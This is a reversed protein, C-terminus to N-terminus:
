QWSPNDGIKEIYQVKYKSELSTFITCQHSVHITNNSFVGHFHDKHCQFAKENDSDNQYVYVPVCICDVAFVEKYIMFVMPNKSNILYSILGSVRMTDNPEISANAEIPTIPLPLHIKKEMITTIYLALLRCRLFYNVVLVAYMTNLLFANLM